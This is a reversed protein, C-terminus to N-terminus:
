GAGQGFRGVLGDLSSSGIIQDDPILVYRWRKGGTEVAHRNATSCWKTAAKAKAKVIDDELEDRKKVECILKQTLTEVVFDPEYGEGSRYEIQFHNRGPKLWKEVTRDDDILVAFRREPDSDFKQVTACCKTFGGFVAKKTESLPSVAQKFSRVRQGPVLNLPQSDLTRFGKTVRVEFDDDGLPTEHYHQM